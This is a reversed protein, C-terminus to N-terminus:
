TDYFDIEWCKNIEGRDVEMNILELNISLKENINDHLTLGRIKILTCEKLDLLKCVIVGKV